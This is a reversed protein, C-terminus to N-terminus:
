RPGRRRSERKARGPGQQKLRRQGRAARRDIHAALWDCIREAAEEKELLPLEITQGGAAVLTVRNTDKDFGAGAATVDNAVVMDLRKESLKRKAEAVPPGTEAAFGIMLCGKPRPLTSLIDPNPELELRLNGAARRKIKHAEVRRPRYDAVAAAMVLADKGPLAAELQHQMERATEVEVTRVGHPAPLATPGSVLTVEAGRRWAAAAVAYGMKGSSRNSLFRVPDIPERTPGATVLLHAGALDHPSLLRAAEAFIVTPEALRGAGEYGCALEGSEPGVVGVGRARLRAVNEQVSPHEWMHVNMAPAALVPARTALLTATLLDNALGAAARALLDATAPALVVLDASEALRIHGIRSEQEPDFIETAVPNGSLTQLTLPSVFQRAAATMIVRVSVGARVLLRVLECVKYCAIGGGMGIVATRGAIRM